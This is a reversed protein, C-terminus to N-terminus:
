KRCDLPPSDPSACGIVSIEKVDCIDCEQHCQRTQVPRAGPSRETKPLVAGASEYSWGPQPRETPPVPQVEVAPVNSPREAPASASAARVGALAELGVPSAFPALAEAFGGISTRMERDKVMARAIADTVGDPVTPRVARVDPIAGSLIALHVGAFTEASFPPVGALLEYLVVGLAWVDSRHDVGRTSLLHEPSMYLPSGFVDQTDTARVDRTDM